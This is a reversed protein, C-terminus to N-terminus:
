GKAKGVSEHVWSLYERSGATVPIVLFEPVEHSHLQKIKQELSALRTSTTKMILLFERASELKGKWRYISEVPASVLNVCAALRAEVLKRAIRRAEARSGCTVLVIRIRVGSKVM